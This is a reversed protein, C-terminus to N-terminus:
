IANARWLNMKKLIYNLVLYKVFRFQVYIQVWYHVHPYKVVRM